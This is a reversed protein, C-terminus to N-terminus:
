KTTNAKDPQPFNARLLQMAEPSWGNPANYRPDTAITQPNEGLQKYRFIMERVAQMQGEKSWDGSFRPIGKNPKLAAVDAIIDKATKPKVVQKDSVLYLNGSLGTVDAYAWGKEDDWVPRYTDQLAKLSENKGVSGALHSELAKNLEPTITPAGRIFITKNGWVMPSHSKLIDRVAGETALKQAQQKPIGASVASKYRDEQAEGFEDVVAFPVDVTKNFVWLRKAKLESPIAEGVSKARMNHLAASSFQITGATHNYINQAIEEKTMEVPALRMLKEVDTTVGDKADISVRLLRLGALGKADKLVSEAMDPAFHQLAGFERISKQVSTADGGADMVIRDSVKAPIKDFQSLFAIADRERGETFGDFRQVGEKGVPEGQFFGSQIGIDIGADQYEPGFPATPNSLVYAVKEQHVNHATFATEYKVKQEPTLAGSALGEDLLAQRVEPATNADVAQWIRNDIATNARNIIQTQAAHRLTPDTIISYTEKILDNASEGIDARVLLDPVNADFLNQQQNKRAVDELGLSLDPRKYKDRLIADLQITREMDGVNAAKTAAAVITSKLANDQSMGYKRAADLTFDLDGIAKEDVSGLTLAATRAQLMDDIAAAQTKSQRRNNEASIGNLLHDRMRARFIDPQNYAMDDLSRIVLTDLPEGPLRNDLLAGYDLTSAKMDAADTFALDHGKRTWLSPIPKGQAKSEIYARVDREEAVRVGAQLTDETQGLLAQMAEGIKSPASPLRPNVGPAALSREIGQRPIGAGQNQPAPGGRGSVNADISLPM